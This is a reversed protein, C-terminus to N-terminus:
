GRRTFCLMQQQLPHRWRCMSDAIEAVREGSATNARAAAFTTEQLAHEETRSVVHLHVLIVFLPAIVRVLRCTTSPLTGPHV